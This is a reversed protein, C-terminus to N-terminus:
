ITNCKVSTSVSRIVVKSNSYYKRSPGCFTFNLGIPTNIAFTGNGIGLRQLELCSDVEPHLTVLIFSMNFQMLFLILIHALLLYQTISCLCLVNKNTNNSTKMINSSVRLYRNNTSRPRAYVLVLSERLM